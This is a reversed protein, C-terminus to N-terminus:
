RKVSQVRGEYFAVCKELSTGGKRTAAIWSSVAIEARWMDLGARVLRAIAEERNM